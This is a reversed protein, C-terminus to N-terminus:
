MPRSVHGILTQSSNLHVLSPARINKPYATVCTFPLSRGLALFLLYISICYLVGVTHLQLRQLTSVQTQLLAQEVHPSAQAAKLHTVQAQLSALQHTLHTICGQQWACRSQEQVVNGM